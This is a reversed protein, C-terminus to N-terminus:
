RESGDHEDGDQDRGTWPNEGIWDPGPEGRKEWPWQPTPRETYVRRALVLWCLMSGIAWSLALAAAYPSLWTDQISLGAGLGGLCWILYGGAGLLLTYAWPPTKRGRLLQLSQSWLGWVLAAVAVLVIMAAVGLGINPTSVPGGSTALALGGWAAVILAICVVTVAFILGWLYSRTVKRRHGEVM